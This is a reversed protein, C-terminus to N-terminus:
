RLAEAWAILTSAYDPEHKPWGGARAQPVITFTHDADPYLKVAVRGDGGSKLADRIASLSALPPVREDHEGYVLFVPAKVRRWAAAPDFGAIARSL